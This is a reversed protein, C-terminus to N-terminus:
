RQTDGGDEEKGQARMLLKRAIGRFAERERRVRRLDTSLRTVEGRLQGIVESADEADDASIGGASLGKLWRGALVLAPVSAIVFLALAVVALRVFGLTTRDSLVFQWVSPDQYTQVARPASHFPWWNALMALIVTAIVAVMAAARQVRSSTWFPREASIEHPASSGPPAAAMPSCRLPRARVCCAFM